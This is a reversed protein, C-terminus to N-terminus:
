TKSQNWDFNCGLNRCRCKRRRRGPHGRDQGAHPHLLPRPLLRPLAALVRRIDGDARHADERDALPPILYKQFTATQTYKLFM